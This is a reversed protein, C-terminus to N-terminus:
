RRADRLYPRLALEVGERVYGANALAEAQPMPRPSMSNGVVVPDHTLDLGGWGEYVRRGDPEYVLVHLSLGSIEGEWERFYHAQTAGSARRPRVRRRVGDWSAIRGFVRADRLVLSPILVYDFAFDSHQRLALTFAAAAIDLGDGESGADETAGQVARWAREADGRHVVGVRAGREQFFRALEEAVVKEADELEPGADQALNLPAIAVRPSGNGTGAASPGPARACSVSGLAVSLLLLWACSPRRRRHWSCRM